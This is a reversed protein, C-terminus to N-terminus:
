DWLFKAYSMTPLSVGWRQEFMDAFGLFSCFIKFWSSFMKGSTYLLNKWMGSCMCACVFFPYLLFFECVEYLIVQSAKQLNWFFTSTAISSSLSVFLVCYSQTQLSCKIVFCGVFTGGYFWNIFIFVWKFCPFNLDFYCSRKLPHLLCVM